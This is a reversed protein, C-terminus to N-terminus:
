HLAVLLSGVVAQPYEQAFNNLRGGASMAAANDFGAAVSENRLKGTGYFGHAAGDPQLLRHCPSVPSNRFTAPQREPHPDIEAIDNTLISVDEAIADVDGGPQLCQGFRAAYWSIRDREMEKLAPSLVEGSSLLSISTRVRMIRAAQWHTA